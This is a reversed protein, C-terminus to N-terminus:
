DGIWRHALAQGLEEVADREDRTLGRRDAYDFEVSHISNGARFLVYYGGDETDPDAEHASLQISIWIGREGNVQRRTRGNSIRHLIPRSEDGVNNVGTCRKAQRVLYNWESRTAAASEYPWVKQELAIPDKWVNTEGLEVQYLLNTERGRIEEGDKDCLEQHQGGHAKMTYEIGPSIRLLKPADARTLMREFHRAQEAPTPPYHDKPRRM